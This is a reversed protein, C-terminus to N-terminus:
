KFISDLIKITNDQMKKTVHTYIQMTVNINKHGLRHQVDKPNAGAELLMSTHTHRLSHFDFKEFGLQYHIVRSCHQM